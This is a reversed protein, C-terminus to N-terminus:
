TKLPQPRQPSACPTKSYRPAPAPQVVGNLSVFANREKMHPHDPAESMSLVPSCCADSGELITCWEDRTKTAFIKALKEKLQPWAKPNLQEAFSDDKIGALNLLLAYFKPEIAGVAIYKGDATEYTEYFHAGTDLVNVGREDKWGATELFGWMMSMLLSAGETMACDIIQGKGTQRANLIAALMSFSLLMGGGGFDGALNIPPTPKSNARGCAHLVGSISIYNIDHGAAHSLPGTQGWGTMRGYVLRPNDELLIEPSLGLREMVGPRFGEILGDASSALDRVKQRGEETKLDAEVCVRSRMLPDRPDPTHGPRHVLTVTAGHDALMMGCFPAPGIGAMEVIQVGDLPGAM